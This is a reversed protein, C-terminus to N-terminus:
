REFTSVDLESLYEFFATEITKKNECLACITTYSGANPTNRVVASLSKLLVDPWSGTTKPEICDSLASNTNRLASSMVEGALHLQLRLPKQTQQPIM